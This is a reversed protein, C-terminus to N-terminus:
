VGLSYVNEELITSIMFIHKLSFIYNANPFYSINILKNQDNSTNLDYVKKMMGLNNLSLLCKSCNFFFWVHSEKSKSLAITQQFYTIYKTAAENNEESGYIKWPM